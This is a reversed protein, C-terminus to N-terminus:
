MNLMGLFQPDRNRLDLGGELVSKLNVLYFSWGSDCGLRISRKSEDDTPIGSQTLTVICSDNVLELLIDVVCNGAFSFQLHDKGNAVNIKGFETPEFLYWNWAYSYGAQVSDEAGIPEQNENFFVAKSLFWKEIGLPKTWADYATQIGTHIAIKRTFSTWDFNHM